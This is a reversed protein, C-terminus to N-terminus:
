ASHYYGDDISIRLRLHRVSPLQPPDCVRSPAWTRLCDDSILLSRGGVVALLPRNTNNYPSQRLVFKPLTKRRM